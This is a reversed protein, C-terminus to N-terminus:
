FMMSDPDIPDDLVGQSKAIEKIEDATYNNNFETFAQAVDDLKEPKFTIKIDSINDWADRSIEFNSLGYKRLINAVGRYDLGNKNWVFVTYAGRGHKKKLFTVSERLKKSESSNVEGKIRYM